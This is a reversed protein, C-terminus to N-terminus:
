TNQRRFQLAVRITRLGTIFLRFHIKNKKMGDLSEVISRYYNYFGQNSTGGYFMSVLYESVYALKNRKDKFVRVMFEYDSASVYKTDYLGYEDYVEREVMMTPHAPCWGSYITGEGMHWDRKVIGDVAYVLNAHAGVIRVGDAKERPTLKKKADEIAFVLKSVADDCTFEDNMVLLYDGTSMSISKNLGYYIGSDPESSWVVSRRVRGTLENSEYTSLNNKIEAQNRRVYDEILEVTGDTSSSDAICVEINPYDQRDIGALTKRLNDVCNYTTLILSVKKMNKAFISKELNKM